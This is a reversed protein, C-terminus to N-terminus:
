IELKASQLLRELEMTIEHKMQSEASKDRSKKRIAKVNGLMRLNDIWRDLDDKTLGHQRMSKDHQSYCTERDTPSTMSPPKTNDYHVALIKRHSSMALELERMPWYRSPYSSSYICVFVHCQSVSDVISSEINDSIKISVDDYFVDASCLKLHDCLHSTFNAAGLDKGTHSLFLKMNPLHVASSKSTDAVSRNTSEKQIEEENDRNTWPAEESELCHCLLAERRLALGRHSMLWILRKNTTPRGDFDFLLPEWKWPTAEVQQSSVWHMGYNNSERYLMKYLCQARDMPVCCQLVKIVRLRGFVSAISRDTVSTNSEDKWRNCLEYLLMLCSKRCENIYTDEPTEMRMRIAWERSWEIQLLGYCVNNIM